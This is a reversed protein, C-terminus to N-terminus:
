IGAIYNVNRIGSFFGGAHGQLRNSGTRRPNHIRSRVTGVNHDIRRFISMTSMRNNVMLTINTTKPIRISTNLIGNIAPNLIVLFFIRKNEADKSISAPARNEIAVNRRLECGFCASSIITMPIPTKMMKITPM